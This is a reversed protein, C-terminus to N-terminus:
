HLHWFLVMMTDPHPYCKRNVHEDTKERWVRAIAVFGIQRSRSITSRFRDSTNRERKREYHDTAQAGASPLFPVPGHGITTPSAYRGVELSPQKVGLENNIDRQSM